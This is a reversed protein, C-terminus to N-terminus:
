KCHEDQLSKLYELINMFVADSGITILDNALLIEMSSIYHALFSCLKGSQNTTILEELLDLVEGLVVDILNDNFIVM